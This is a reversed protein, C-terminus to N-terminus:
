GPAGVKPVSVLCSTKWQVPVEGTQLSRNFIWQLPESLQAACDKLLRLCVGDPGVAKEARVEDATFSLPLQGDTTSTTATVTDSTAPPPNGGPSLPAPADAAASM